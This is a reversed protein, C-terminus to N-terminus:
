LYKGCVPWQDAGSTQYLIIARYTQERPTADAPNGIGGMSQWTQVSFQYLGYYMGNGSVSQPNGGSECQALASWDLGTNDPPYPTTGKEVIETRTTALTTSSLVKRQYKKGDRYIYEVKERRKGDRGSQVVQEQDLMWDSNKQIKQPAKVTVTETRTKTTVRFVSVTTVGALSRDEAPETQDDHAMRIHEDAILERVTAAYTTYTTHHGDRVLTLHKRTRITIAAGSRPIDGGSPGAVETPTRALGLKALLQHVTRSTVYRRSQRGDVTLDVPRGRGIVVRGGFGDAQAPDVTDHPGLTLGAQELLGAVTAANSRLVRSTGDDVITVQHTRTLFVGAAGLVVIMGVLQITLAV